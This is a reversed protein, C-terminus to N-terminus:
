TGLFTLGFRRVTPTRMGVVGHAKRQHAHQSLRKALADMFTSLLKALGSRIAGAIM